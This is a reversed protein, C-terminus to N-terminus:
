KIERKPEIACVDCAASDKMREWVGGMDSTMPPNFKWEIGHRRAHQIVRDRNLSQLSRRLENHAGVLNMGNDSTVTAPYGRRYTFRIFGNIFADTDFGYRKIQSRRETVYFLEFLDVGM